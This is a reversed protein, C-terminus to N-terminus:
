SINNRIAMYERVGKLWGGTFYDEPKFTKTDAWMMEVHRPSLSIEGKTLTAPYGIAFIRVTPNGPAHEVREHRMFLMPKGISYEIKDGLEQSMKRRVVEELSAEFEEKKIRGGPLDWDNFNDKFVLFKGDKELFVKVAVFYTDKQDM